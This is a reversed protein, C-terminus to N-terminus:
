GEVRKLSVSVGPAFGFPGHTWDAVEGDVEYLVGAVELRDLPTVTVPDGGAVPAWPFPPGYVSLGVTVVDRGSPFAEASGDASRPGYGFVRVDVPDAFRLVANGHGDAADEVRKCVGVVQALPLSM